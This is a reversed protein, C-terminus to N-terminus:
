RGRKMLDLEHQRARLIDWITGRASAQNYGYQARGANYEYQLPGGRPAINRAAAAIPIGRSAPFPIGQRVSIAMQQAQSIGASPLTPLKVGPAGPAGVLQITTGLNGGVLSVNLQPGMPRIDNIFPRITNRALTVPDCKRIPYPAIVGTKTVRDPRPYRVAQGNAHTHSVSLAM